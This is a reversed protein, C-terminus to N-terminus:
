ILNITGGAQEIAKKASESAAHVSINLKCAMEGGGLIKIKNTKRVIGKEALVEPNITDIQYKDYIEQLRSLNLPVYSVRNINKFGRKPLRMQLPMQGGEFNRKRSWGSRSKAGKHGRTSTGGRGSGPGRAIRKKTKVSGKAPSLNHLEM